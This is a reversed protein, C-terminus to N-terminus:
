IRTKMYDTYDNNSNVNPDCANSEPIFVSLVQIITTIGLVSETLPHNKINIAMPDKIEKKGSNIIVVKDTKTKLYEFTKEMLESCENGSNLIIVSSDKNVARHMGHSFEEIDNFLTPMCMTEMLKLQGELATGYNMGCGLVFVNKMGKGFGTMECWKVTKEIICSLEDVCDQLENFIECARDNDVSNKKLALSLSICILLLITSSYGKTKANSNEEGCNLGLQINSLEALPSTEVDTIGLIPFGLGKAKKVAELTGRSTGTQSIAVVLTKSPNEYSITNCSYLFNGPTYCYVRVRAHKSLFDSVVNAANYSSGHSVFYVTELGELSDVKEQIDKRLLLSNLVAAEESIYRWMISKREMFNGGIM